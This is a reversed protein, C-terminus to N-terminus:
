GSQGDGRDGQGDGNHANPHNPTPDTRQQGLGIPVLRHRDLHIRCKRSGVRPLNRPLFYVAEFPDNSLLLVMGAGVQFEGAAVHVRKSSSCAVASFRMDNAQMRSAATAERNWERSSSPPPQIARNSFGPLVEIRCQPMRVLAQAQEQLTPRIQEHRLETKKVPQPGM